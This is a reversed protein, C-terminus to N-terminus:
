IPRTRRAELEALFRTHEESALGRELTAVMAPGDDAYLAVPDLWLGPFVKSRYIGDPDAAIRVLRDAELVHWFVEDPDIAFVVYELTGAREYDALKTGLDIAKSSDSVEIVLEPAGKIIKGHDQTQGGRDPLIRLFADPQVEGLEDLATSGNDGLEIGPTRTRYTWLWGVANATTIYHKKGVPSPMHVVGGILEARIGPPMAEYLEHFERQKLRQGAVLPAVAPREVTSM